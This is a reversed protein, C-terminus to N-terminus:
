RLIVGSRVTFSLGTFLGGIVLWVELCAVILTLLYYVIGCAFPFSCVDDSRRALDHAMVVVVWAFADKM